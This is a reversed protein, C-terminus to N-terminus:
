RSYTSSSDAATKGELRSTMSRQPVIEMFFYVVQVFSGFILFLIIWVVKMTTSMTHHVGAHVIYFVMMAISLVSLLFIWIFLGSLSGILTTKIVEDDQSLIAPFLATLFWVLFGLGIFLQSVTFLGLVVKGIRSLNM